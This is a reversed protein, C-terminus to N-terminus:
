LRSRVDFNENRRERPIAIINTIGDAAPPASLQQPTGDDSLSFFDYNRLRLFEWSGTRSLNLRENASANMELIITPRSHLIADRFGHLALEEAGEVDLKILGVRGAVQEELVSELTRTTVEEFAVPTSKPCGLSFSTRGYESHYLRAKGNKDSLAARYACVNHLQNIEINMKLVSFAQRGPEFSLVRGSPGVLRAAVVTYIGHNAGADVVVMGPSVLHDLFALEKEYLQRLAFVGTTGGGQWLPPLFLRVNWPHLTVTAPIRLACHIRWGLLRAVIVLPSQRFAPHNMLYRWRSITREFPNKM